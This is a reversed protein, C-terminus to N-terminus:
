SATRQAVPLLKEIEAREFRYRGGPTKFAKIKGIRAWRSVTARPVDFAEAVQAASMLTDSGNRM